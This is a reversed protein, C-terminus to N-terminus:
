PIEADVVPTGLGIATLEEESLEKQMADRLSQGM